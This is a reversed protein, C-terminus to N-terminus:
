YLIEHETQVRFLKHNGYVFKSVSFYVFRQLQVTYQVLTFFFFVIM